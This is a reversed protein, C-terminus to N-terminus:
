TMKDVMGNIEGMMQLMRDEFNPDSWPPSEEQYQQQPTAQYQITNIMSRHIHNITYNMVKNLISEMIKLKGHSTLSTAEHWTILIFIFTM